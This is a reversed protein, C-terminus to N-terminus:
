GVQDNPGFVMQVVFPKGDTVHYRDAWQRLIEDLEAIADDVREPPIDLEELVRLVKPERDAWDKMLKFFRATDEIM